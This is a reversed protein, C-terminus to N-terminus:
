KQIGGTSEVFTVGGRDIQTYIPIKLDISSLVTITGKWMANQRTTLEGFIHPLFLICDLPLGKRMARPVQMGEILFSDLPKVTKIISYPVESWPENIFSDTHIVPREKVLYSLSTKGTHPPGIIGIKPFEGLLESLVKTNM